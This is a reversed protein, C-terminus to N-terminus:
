FYCTKFCFFKVDELYLPKHETSMSPAGMDYEYGYKNTPHWVVTCSKIDLELRQALNLSGHTISSSPMERKQKYGNLRFFTAALPNFTYKVVIVEMIKILVLM